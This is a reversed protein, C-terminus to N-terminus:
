GGQSQVHKLTDLNYENALMTRIYKSTVKVVQFMYLKLPISSWIWCHKWTALLVYIYSFM